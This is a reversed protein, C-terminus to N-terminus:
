QALMGKPTRFYTVLKVTLRLNRGQGGGVALSDVSLFLPSQELQNIFKVIKAYEGELATDMEVAEIDARDKLPKVGYSVSGKRVNNAVAIRDLEEMITSFGTDAPLFKTKSFEEAQRMSETLNAEVKKLRAVMERKGKAENNLKELEMRQQSFSQGAPRFALFFILGDLLLLGFLFGQVLRRREYLDFKGLRKPNSM